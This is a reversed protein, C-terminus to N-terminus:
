FGIRRPTKALGLHYNEGNVRTGGEVEGHRKDAQYRPPCPETRSSRGIRCGGANCNGAGTKRGVSQANSSNM